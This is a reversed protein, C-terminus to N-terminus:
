LLLLAGGCDATKAAASADRMRDDLRLRGDEGTVGAGRQHATSGLVPSDLACTSMSWLARAVLHQV